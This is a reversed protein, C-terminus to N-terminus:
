LCGSGMASTCPTGPYHDLGHGRPPRHGGAQLLWRALRREHRPDPYVMALRQRPWNTRINRKSAGASTVRVPFPGLLLETGSIVGVAVRTASYKFSRCRWRGSNPSKGTKQLRWRCLSIRAPTVYIRFFYTVSARAWDATPNGSATVGCTSRCVLAISKKCAPTLRM